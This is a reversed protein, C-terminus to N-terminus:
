FMFEIRGLESMSNADYIIGQWQHFSSSALDAYEPLSVYYVDQILEGPQWHPSLAVQHLPFRDAVIPAGSNDLVPTGDANLLRLSLKLVQETPALLRWHLTLEVYPRTNITLRRLVYSEIQVRGDGLVIPPMAPLPQVQAAGRPWVRVLPGAGSFSYRSEIGSLERTLYVPVGTAMGAELAALRDAPDDAAIPQANLGIGKALQMYRLATMEGEIGLVRSQPPFDVSAMLYALDDWDSDYRPAPGRGQPAILLLAILALQLLRAPWRPLLRAMLGIGGGIFLSIGLLTPLLFVEPDPVRYNLAFIANLLGMLLILWWARAPRWTRDFLWVLGLSALILGLWGFQAVLLAGWEAPTYRVALPNDGFFGTYGRALIHHWFGAWTNTYSGNLDIVGMSARLPLYLYLLLPLLLAALWGGWQRTPRWIGPISWLLYIVVPPMLLVITRHHALGLGFLLALLLVRRQLARPWAAQTVSVPALTRNIGVVTLLIAAILFNHLAYVEAVTAQSWWIPALGFATAAAMGAWSNPRGQRDTVLQSGLAAILGVTMAGLLASLLNLRWAWAGIPLLRTWIGGLLTYLPYGTPHAIAFTPIVVQFELTDDFFSVIGPATTITYLLLYLLFACIALLRPPIHSQPSGSPSSSPLASAQRPLM